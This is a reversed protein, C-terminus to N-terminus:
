RRRRAALVGGAVLVPLVGPAPLINLGSITMQDQVFVNSAGQAPYLNAVVDTLDLTVVGMRPHYRFEFRFAEYVRGIHIFTNMEPAGNADAVQRGSITGDTSSIGSDTVFDAIGPGFRSGGNTSTSGFFAGPRRGSEWPTGPEAGIVDGLPSQTEAIESFLESVGIADAIGSSDGSATIEINFNYQHWAYFSGFYNTADLVVDVQVVTDSGQQGANSATLYMSQGSAVASLMAAASVIITIKM